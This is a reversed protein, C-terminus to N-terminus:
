HQPKNMYQFINDNAHQPQNLRDISQTTVLPKLVGVWLNHRGAFCSNIQQLASAQRLPLNNQRLQLLKVKRVANCDSALHTGEHCTRSQHSNRKLLHPSPHIFLTIYIYLSLSVTNESMFVNCRGQM